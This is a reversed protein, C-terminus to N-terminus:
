LHNGYYSGQPPPLSINDVTSVQQPPPQQQYQYGEPNASNFITWGPTSANVVAATAAATPHSNIVNHNKQYSMTPQAKKM